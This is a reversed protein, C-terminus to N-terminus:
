TRASSSAGGVTFDIARKRRLVDAHRITLTCGIIVVRVSSSLLGTFACLGIRARSSGFSSRACGLRDGLWLGQGRLEGRCEGEWLVGAWAAGGVQTVGGMGSMEGKCRDTDNDGRERKATEALASPEKPERERMNGKGWIGM